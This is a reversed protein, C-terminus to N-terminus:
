GSFIHLSPSATIPLRPFWLIPRQNIATDLWLDATSVQMVVLSLFTELAESKQDANHWGRLVLM